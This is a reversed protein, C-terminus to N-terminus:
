SLIYVCMLKLAELTSLRSIHCRSGESLVGRPEITPKEVEENTTLPQALLYV